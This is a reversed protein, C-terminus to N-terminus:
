FFVVGNGATYQLPNSAVVLSHIIHAKGDAVTLGETEYAFRATTLSRHSFGNESQDLGRISLDKKLSLIQSCHVACLQAAGPFIHM